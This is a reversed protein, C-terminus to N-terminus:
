AGREISLSDIRGTIRMADEHYAKLSLAKGCVAV